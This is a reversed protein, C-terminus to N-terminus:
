QLCEGFLEVQSTSNAALVAPDPSLQNLRLLQGASFLHDRIMGRSAEDITAISTEGANAVVILLSDATISLDDLLEPSHSTVIVQTHESAHQLAQRLAGSASPHLATEPEEIGILSPMYDSNGQFLATLIGFARLTGDSMNMGLFEWPYKAGAMEQRFAVTEMPGIPIRKVGHVMPVVTHLYEEIIKVAEPANRDLHGL